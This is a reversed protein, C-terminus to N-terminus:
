LSDGSIRSALIKEAVETFGAGCRKDTIFAPKHEIINLFPKVNAMAFSHEFFAFMPEDNPSDGCFVMARNDRQGDLGFCETVCKLSTSLKDFDGYWGNVHISSIKAHAGAENFIAKIRLADEMKMRPVDECFDIALDYERYPQDSAIGCGPAEKLIKEKVAELDNRFKSREDQTYLFVRELKKGDHRFYFGGNEGVVADVPWFRAIHDCWGAPRGTVIIIRIGVDHLAWLASFADATIKGDTSITDDIDSLLIKVGALEKHSIKNIAKM